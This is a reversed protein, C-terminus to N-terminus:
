LLPLLLLPLPLATRAPRGRRPLLKLLQEQQERRLLKSVPLAV